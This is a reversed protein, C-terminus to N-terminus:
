NREEFGEQELIRLKEARTHAIPVGYLEDNPDDSITANPNRRRFDDIEERTTLGISHMQIPKHYERDLHPGAAEAAYDRTMQKGCQPCSQDAKSDSMSRFFSETHECHPCAYEYM